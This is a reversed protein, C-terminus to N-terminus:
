TANEAVAIDIGAKAALRGVLDDMYQGARLRNYRTAQKAFKIKLTRSKFNLRDACM